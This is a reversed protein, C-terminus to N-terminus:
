TAGEALKILETKIKEFNEPYVFRAYGGADKIKNINYEQLTGETKEKASRKVELAGFKGAVCFM